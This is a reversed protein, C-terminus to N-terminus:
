YPLTMGAMHWASKSNLGCRRYYRYNAIFSPFHALKYSVRLGREDLIKVVHRFLTVSWSAILNGMFQACSLISPTEDEKKLPSMSHMIETGQPWAQMASKTMEQMVLDIEEPQTLNQSM